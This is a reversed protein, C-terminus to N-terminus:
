LLIVVYRSMIQTNRYYQLVHLNKSSSGSSQLMHYKVFFNNHTMQSLNSCMVFIPLMSDCAPVILFVASISISKPLTRRCIFVCVCVCPWQGLTVSILQCDSQSTIINNKLIQLICTNRWTSIAYRM